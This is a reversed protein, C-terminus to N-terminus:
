DPNITILPIDDYAVDNYRPVVTVKNHSSFPVVAAEYSINRAPVHVRPTWDEASHSVYTSVTSYM